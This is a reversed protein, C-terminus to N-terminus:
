IYSSKKPNMTGVGRISWFPGHILGATEPRLVTARTVNAAINKKADSELSLTQLSFDLFMKLNGNGYNLGHASHKPFCLFM